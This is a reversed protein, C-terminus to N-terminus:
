YRVGTLEESRQWLRDSVERDHTQAAPELVRRKYFLKGTVGEVEPASAAWVVTDAGQEATLFFLRGIVTYLARVLLGCHQASRTYVDGPHVANVTVGRGELRRSLECTFMMNALKAQAYARVGSYRRSMELDDLDIRGRWHLRSSINVVRAPASAVLSDLLLRTLLFPALHDLALTGEHGEETVRRKPFLAGACNVLVDVRPLRALREALARVERQSALDALETEVLRSGTAAVVADHAAQARGPHQSVMVVRLGQRALALATAHGIGTSAGTVICTRPEM